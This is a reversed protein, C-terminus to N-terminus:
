RDRADDAAACRGQVCSCGSIEPFGCISAMKERACEEKVREPFTPSDRNVCAPYYGCCNGVNKVECDADSKCQDNVAGGAPPPDAPATAASACAALAFVAVLVIVRFM